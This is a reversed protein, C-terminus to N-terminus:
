NVGIDLNFLLGLKVFGLDLLPGLKIQPNSDLLSSKGLFKPETWEWANPGMLCTIDLTIRKLTLSIWALDLAMSEWNFIDIVDDM